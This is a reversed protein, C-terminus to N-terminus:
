SSLCFFKHAEASAEPSVIGGKSSDGAFVLLPLKLQALTDKWYLTKDFMKRSLTDIIDQDLQKKSECMAQILNEPWSPNREGYQIILEELPVEKLSKAWAVIPNNNPDMEPLAGTFWPPDELILAKALEPFRLGVQYTVMSGMSHGAIIPKDLELQTILGALDAAMDIHASDKARASKGHGRNDPMIIDYESELAEAVPTWCLGNDSFGHVLILIKDSKRATRYYHINISNVQIDHETWDINM